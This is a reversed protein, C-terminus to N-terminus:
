QIYLTDGVLGIQSMAFEGKVDNSGYSFGITFTDPHRSGDVWEDMYPFEYSHYGEMTTFGCKSEVRTGTYVEGLDIGSFELGCKSFVVQIQEGNDSVDTLTFEMEAYDCNYTRGEYDYMISPDKYHQYESHQQGNSSSNGPEYDSPDTIISYKKKENGSPYYTYDDDYSSDSYNSNNNDSYVVDNSTPRQAIGCGVMTATACAAIATVFLVKKMM